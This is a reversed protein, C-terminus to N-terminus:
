NDKIHELCFIIKRFNIINDCRHKRKNNEKPRSVVYGKGKLIVQLNQKLISMSEHPAPATIVM